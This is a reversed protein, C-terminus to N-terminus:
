ITGRSLLGVEHVNGTGGVVSEGDHGVKGVQGPVVVHVIVLTTRQPDNRYRVM